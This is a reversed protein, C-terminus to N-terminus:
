PAPKKRKPVGDALKQAEDWHAFMPALVGEIIELSLILDKETPMHGRHMAAHGVELAANLADRQVLSIFGQQQLASLKQPFSPLDGVTMVMLQEIVARIGMAALRHQENAIACYVESLLAALAARETNGFLILDLVWSPRQRTIPAPYFEIDTGSGDKWIRKYGLSVRGCGGCQLMAYQEITEQEHLSTEFLVEHRREGLCNSCPAPVFGKDTM